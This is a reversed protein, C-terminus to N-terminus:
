RATADPLRALATRGDETSILTYRDLRPLAALAEDASVAPSRVFLQGGIEIAAGQDAYTVIRGRPPEQAGVERTRIDGAARTTGTFETIDIAPSLAAGTAPHILRVTGGALVILAAGDRTVAIERNTEPTTKIALRTRWMPNGTALDVLRLTCDDSLVAVHTGKVAAISGHGACHQASDGAGLRISRAHRPAEGAVDYVVLEDTATLVALHKGEITFTASIVSAPPQRDPLRKTYDAVDFITLRPEALHGSVHAFRRGDGTFARWTKIASLAASWECSSVKGSAPAVCRGVCLISNGCVDIGWIVRGGDHLFAALEVVDAPLRAGGEVEELGLAAIAADDFERAFGYRQPPAHPAEGRHAWLSREPRLAPLATM